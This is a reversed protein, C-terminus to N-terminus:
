YQSLIPTDCDIQGTIVIKANYAIMYSINEGSVNEVALFTRPLKRLQLFVTPWIKLNQGTIVIKASHAIMHSSIEWSVNEVALFTRSLKEWSFFSQQGNKLNQGTIVLKAIVPLWTLFRKECSINLQLFVRPCIKQQFM